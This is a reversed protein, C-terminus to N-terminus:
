LNGISIIFFMSKEAHKQNRMQADTLALQFKSTLEIMGQLIAHMDYLLERINIM